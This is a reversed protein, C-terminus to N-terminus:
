NANERKLKEIEADCRAIEKPVSELNEADIGRLQGRDRLARWNDLSRQYYSRTASLHELREAVPRTTDAALKEYVSGLRFNTGAIDSTPNGKAFEEFTTLAKRQYELAGKLDGSKTLTWGLRTYASALSTRARENKPDAAALSERIGVVKRYGEVAGALDGKEQLIFASDSIAYSLDLRAEANLPDATITAEDLQQAQSYHEL